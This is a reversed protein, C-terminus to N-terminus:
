APRALLKRKKKAKQIIDPSECMQQLTDLLLLSPWGVKWGDLTGITWGDM